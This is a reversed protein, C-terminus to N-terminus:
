RRIKVATSGNQHAPYCIASPSAGSLQRTSPRRFNLNMIRCKTCLEAPRSFKRGDRKRQKMKKRHVPLFPGAAQATCLQGPLQAVCSGLEIAYNAKCIAYNAKCDSLRASRIRRSQAYHRCFRRPPSRLQSLLESWQM